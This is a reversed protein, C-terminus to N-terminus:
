KNEKEKRGHCGRVRGAEPTCHITPGRASRRDFKVYAEAVVDTVVPGQEGSCHWNETSYLGCLLRTDPTVSSYVYTHTYKHTHTHNNM